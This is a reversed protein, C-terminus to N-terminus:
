AVVCTCHILVTRLAASIRLICQNLSACFWSGVFHSASMTLAKGRLHSVLVALALNFRYRGPWGKGSLLRSRIRCVRRTQVLGALRIARM